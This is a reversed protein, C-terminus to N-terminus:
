KLGVNKGDIDLVTEDAIWVGSVKPRFKNAEKTALETFRRVWNYPTVDSMYDGNIVM